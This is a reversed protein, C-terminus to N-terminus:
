NRNSYHNYQKEGNYNKREYNSGQEQYHFRNNNLEYKIKFYKSDSNM